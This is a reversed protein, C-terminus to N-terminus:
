GAPRIRVTFHEGRRSAITLAEGSGIPQLPGVELGRLHAGSSFSWSRGGDASRVLRTPGSWCQWTSFIESAVAVAPGMTSEAEPDDCGPMTLRASTWSRGGDVSRSAQAQYGEVKDSTGTVVLLDPLFTLHRGGIPDAPDAGARSLDIRDWSRGSDTTTWVALGRRYTIREGQQDLRLTDSAPPPGALELPRRPVSAAASPPPQAPGGRSGPRIAFLRGSDAAVVSRLGTDRPLGTPVTETWTRGEDTSRLVLPQYGPSPSAGTGGALLLAGEVRPVTPSFQSYIGREVGTAATFTAGQDNSTWIFPREVVHGEPRNGVVLVTDGNSVLSMQSIPALPGPLEPASWTTGGDDSRVLGTDGDGFTLLVDDTAIFKGGHGIDQPHLGLPAGTAPLV